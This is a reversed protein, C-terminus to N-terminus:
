QSTIVLPERRVPAYPVAIGTSHPAETPRQGRSHGASTHTHPVSFVIAVRPVTKGSLEAGGTKQSKPLFGLLFLCFLTSRPSPPVADTGTRHDIAWSAVAATAPAPASASFARSTKQQQQNPSQLISRADSRAGPCLSLHMAPSALRAPGICMCLHPGNNCAYCIPKHGESSAKLLAWAWCTTV